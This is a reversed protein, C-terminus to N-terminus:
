FPVVLNRQRNNRHQSEYCSKPANPMRILHNEILNMKALYLLSCSDGFDYTAIRLRLPLGRSVNASEFSKKVTQKMSSAFFM